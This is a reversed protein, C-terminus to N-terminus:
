YYFTQRTLSFIPINGRLNTSLWADAWSLIHSSAWQLHPWPIRAV